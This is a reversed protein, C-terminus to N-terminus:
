INILKQTLKNSINLQLMPVNFSRCGMQELRQTKAVLNWCKSDSLRLRESLLHQITQFIGLPTIQM